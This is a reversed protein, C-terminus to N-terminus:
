LMEQAEKFLLHLSKTKMSIEKKITSQKWNRSEAEHGVKVYWDGVFHDGKIGTSEPTSNWQWIPLYSVM